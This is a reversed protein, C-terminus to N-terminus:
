RASLQVGAQEAALAGRERRICRAGGRRRPSRPITCRRRSASKAVSPRQAASGCPRDCARCARKFPRRPQKMNTLQAELVVRQSEIIRGVFQLSEKDKLGALNIFDEPNPTTM